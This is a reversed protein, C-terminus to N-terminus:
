WVIRKIRQKCCVPSIALRVALQPLTSQNHQTCTGRQQQYLALGLYPAVYLNDPAKALGTLMLMRFNTTEGVPEIFKPKM